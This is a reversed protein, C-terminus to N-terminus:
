PSSPPRSTAADTTEPAVHPYAQARRAARAAWWVSFSFLASLLVFTENHQPLVRVVKLLLVAAVVLLRLQVYRTALRGLATGRVSRLLAAILLLDTPWFLLANENPSFNHVRSVLTLPVVLLGFVGSILALLSLSLAAVIRRRSSVRARLSWVTLLTLVSFLAIMVYRAAHLRMSLAPPAKRAYVTEVPLALPVRAGDILVTAEAVRDRLHVPLYMEEYGSVPLDQHGGGLLDLGWHGVPHGSMAELTYDRFHRHTIRKKAAETLAGASAEDILDRLRTACNDYLQDYRYRNHPPRLSQFLKAILQQKKDAPLQLVQRQLTRDVTRYRYRVLLYREMVSFFDGEGRVFEWMFSPRDFPAAGYSFVVDKTNERVRIASHGFREWLSNGPEM